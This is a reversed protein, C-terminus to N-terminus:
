FSFSALPHTDVYVRCLLLSCRTLSLSYNSSFCYDIVTALFSLLNAIKTSQVINVNKLYESM